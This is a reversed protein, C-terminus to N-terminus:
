SRPGIGRGRNKMRMVGLVHFGAPPTDLYTVTMPVGGLRRTAAASRAAAECIMVGLNGRFIWDLSQGHDAFFEIAVQEETRDGRRKFYRLV